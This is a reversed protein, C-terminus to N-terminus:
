GTTSFYGGLGPECRVDVLSIELLKAKGRKEFYLSGM